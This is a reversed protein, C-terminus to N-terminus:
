IAVMRAPNLCREHVHCTVPAQCLAPSPSKMLPQELLNPCSQPSSAGLFRAPAQLLLSPPGTARLTSPPGHGRLLFWRTPLMCTVESTEGRFWLAPAPPSAPAGGPVLTPCLMFGPHPPAHPPGGLGCCGRREGPCRCLDRQKGAAGRGDEKSPDKLFTLWVADNMAAKFRRLPGVARLVFALAEAAPSQVAPGRGGERM